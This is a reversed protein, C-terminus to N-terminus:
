YPLTNKLIFIQLFRRGASSVYRNFALMQGNNSWVVGGVPKDAESFPDTEFYIEGTDVSSLLIRNGAPYALSKGDPSFNFQGQVDFANFTLQRIAGGNPSVGFIQIIGQADKSLFSIISGAANTRLWHRPGMIGSQTFTIRRQTIGSPVAPRTDISGEILENGVEFDVDEPLDAVFCETKLVGNEDAVHGQFAIARCKRTGDEGIYGNSGIWCEDFAKEIDDTGACPNATVRSVIVSFLAGDNNEMEVDEPVVVKKLPLMVGVARLDKKLPDVAALQEMVFDNYTFSIWQGDGSWCHAHTGGRLAGKTFPSTINRADMFVPHQPRAIDIAVGTRRTFSYPKEAMANRIGHIFIVVDGTPSFSAAGVGPGFVSQNTTRYLERIEATETHLMLIRGTAGIQGDDNRADFVIWQDDVSFVQYNHITHGSEDFTLQQMKFNM